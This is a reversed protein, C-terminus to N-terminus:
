SQLPPEFQEISHRENAGAMKVVGDQPLRLLPLRPQALISVAKDRFPLHTCVTNVSMTM